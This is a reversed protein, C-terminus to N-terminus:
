RGGRMAAKVVLQEMEIQIRAQGTKGEYDIRALAKMVEALANLNWKALNRLFQDAGYYIRLDKTIQGAPIRDDLMARAQFMRRFHFAFAGVVTYEADKNSVFMDRIRGVAVDTRGSTMADIVNFVDYHRNAGCLASIDNPTIIDREGVYVALKAVENAILAPDDGAYEVVLRAADPPLKRGHENRALEVAYGTLDRSKLEGIEEFDGVQKIKKAIKTNSRLTSVTMVLVGRSSPKDLYKLLVDSNSSIFKDAERMLLIKREALFPATRLEDLVTSVETKDAECVVLGMEREDDSILTSLLKECRKNVLFMDKGQIVYVPSPSNVEKSKAM